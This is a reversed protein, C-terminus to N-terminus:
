PNRDGLDGSSKCRWTVRWAQRVFVFAGPASAGPANHNLPEANRSLPPSPPPGGAGRATGGASIFGGHGSAGPKAPFAVGGAGKLEDFKGGLDGRAELPCGLVCEDPPFFPRFLAQCIAPTGTYQTENMYTSKYTIGM